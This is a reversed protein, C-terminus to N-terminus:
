CQGCHNDGAPAADNASEIRTKYKKGRITLRKDIVINETYRGKAIKITDGSSAADIAAQITAYSGPVKLTAGCVSDAGGAIVALGLVLMPLASLGPTVNRIKM